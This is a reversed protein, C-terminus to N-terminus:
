RLTANKGTHAHQTGKTHQPIQYLLTGVKNTAHSQLAYNSLTLGNFKIMDDLM